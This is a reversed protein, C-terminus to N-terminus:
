HISGCLVLHLGHGPTVPVRRSGTHVARQVQHRSVDETVAVSQLVWHTGDVRADDPKMRSCCAAAFVCNWGSMWTRKSCYECNASPRKVTESNVVERNVVERNVVERNVVERNV